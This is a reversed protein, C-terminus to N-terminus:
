TKVKDFSSCSGVDLWYPGHWRVLTHHSKCSTKSLPQLRANAWAPVKTIPFIPPSKAQIGTTPPRRQKRRPTLSATDFPCRFITSGHVQSADHRRLGEDLGHARPFMGLVLAVLVRREKGIYRYAARPTQSAFYSARPQHNLSTVDAHTHIIAPIALCTKGRRVTPRCELLVSTIPSLGGSPRGATYRVRSGRLLELKQRRCSERNEGLERTADDDRRSLM